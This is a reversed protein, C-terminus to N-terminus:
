AMFIGSAHHMEIVRTFFTDDALILCILPAFFIVARCVVSITIIHPHGNLAFVFLYFHSRVTYQSCEIYIRDWQLSDNTTTASSIAM